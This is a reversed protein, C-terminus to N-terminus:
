PLGSLMSALQVRAYRVANDIGSWSETVDAVICRQEDWPVQRIGILQKRLVSLRQRDLRAESASTIITRAAVAM